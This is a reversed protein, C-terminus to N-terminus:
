HRMKVEVEKASALHALQALSVPSGRDFSELFVLFGEL